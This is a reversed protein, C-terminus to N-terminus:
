LCPEIVPWIGEPCDGWAKFVTESVSYIASIWSSDTFRKGLKSISIEEAIGTLGMWTQSRMDLKWVKPTGAIEESM